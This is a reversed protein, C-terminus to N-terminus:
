YGEREQETLSFQPQYPSPKNGSKYRYDRFYTSTSETRYDRFNKISLIKAFKNTISNNLNASLIHSSPSSKIFQSYKLLM